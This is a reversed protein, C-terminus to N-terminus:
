SLIMLLIVKIMLLYLGVLLQTIRCRVIQRKLAKYDQIDYVDQLVGVFPPFPFLITEDTKICISRESNLEQWRLDETKGAKRLKSSNKYKNYMTRFENAYNDLISEDREFYQFDFKFTFVGDEIGSIKCYDPDLKQIFYSDDTSYEYGYFVGERVAVQLCKLMEHKINM